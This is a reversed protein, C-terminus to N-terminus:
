LEKIKQKVKKKKLIVHLGKFEACTNNEEGVGYNYTKPETRLCILSIEYESESISQNLIEKLDNNDIECKITATHNAVTIKREMIIKTTYEEYEPYGILEKKSDFDIEINKEKYEKKYYDLLIKKLEEPNIDMTIHETM